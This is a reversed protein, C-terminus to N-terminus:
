KLKALRMERTPRAYANGFRVPSQKDFLSIKPAATVPKKVAMKKAAPRPTMAGTKYDLKMNSSRAKFERGSEGKVRKLM